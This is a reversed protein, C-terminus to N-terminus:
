LTHLDIVQNYVLHLVEFDVQVPNPDLKSENSMKGTAVNCPVM